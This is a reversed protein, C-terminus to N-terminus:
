KDTPFQTEAFKGWAQDEAAGEDSLSDYYNSISASIREMERVERQQRILEELVSSVSEARRKDRLSELYKVAERSLSFTKKTKPAALKQRM